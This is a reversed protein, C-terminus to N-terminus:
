ETHEKERLLFIDISLAWLLSLPPFHVCEEMGIIQRCQLAINEQSTRDLEGPRWSYILLPDMQNMEEVPMLNSENMILYQIIVDWM